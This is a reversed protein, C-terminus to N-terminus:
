RITCLCSEGSEAGYVSSNMTGQDSPIFTTEAKISTCFFGTVLSPLVVLGTTQSQLQRSSTQPAQAITLSDPTASFAGAALPKGDIAVSVLSLEDGDLRLPAATAAQPHPRMALRARVKTQTPHLAIDLDVRDIVWDPPRYDQLRIPRAQETRM